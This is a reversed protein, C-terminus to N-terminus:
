SLCCLLKGLAEEMAKRKQKQPIETRKWHVCCIWKCNPLTQVIGELFQDSITKFHFLIMVTMMVIVVSPQREYQVHNASVQTDKTQGWEKPPKKENFFAAHVRTIAGAGASISAAPGQTRDTVYRTTFNDSDPYSTETVAEVGNFNSAIQFLANRNEPLTQLYAVDM